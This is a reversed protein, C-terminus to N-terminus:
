CRYRQWRSFFAVWIAAIDHCSVSIGVSRLGARFGRYDHTTTAGNIKEQVRRPLSLYVAHSDSWMTDGLGEIPPLEVMHMMSFRSPAKM